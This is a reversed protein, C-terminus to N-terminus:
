AFAAFHRRLLILTADSFLMSIIAFAYHRRCRPLCYSFFLRMTHYRLPMAFALMLM